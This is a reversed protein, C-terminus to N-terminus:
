QNFRQVLEMRSHCGVKKYIHNVHNKVTGVAVCLTEATQPITKGRLLHFVVDRERDTLGYQSSPDEGVEHSKVLLTGEEGGGRPDEDRVTLSHYGITIVDGKRLFQKKDVKKKNVFTGNLSGLDEISSGRPSLCIRAHRRSITGSSLILDAESERGLLFADKDVPIVWPEGKENMAELWIKIKSKGM